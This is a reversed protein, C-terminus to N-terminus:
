RSARGDSSAARPLIGAISVYLSTILGAFLLAIGLAQSADARLQRAKGLSACSAKSSQLNPNEV